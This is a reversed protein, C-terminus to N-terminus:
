ISLIQDWFSDSKEGLLKQVKECIELIYEKPVDEGRLMKWLMLDGRLVKSARLDDPDGSREAKAIFMLLQQSLQVRIKYPIEM